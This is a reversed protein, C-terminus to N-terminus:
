IPRGQAAENGTRDTGRTGEFTAEPAGQAPPLGGQNPDFGLGGPAGAQENQLTQQSQAQQAEAQAQVQQQLAMQEKAEQLRITSAIQADLFQEKYADKM